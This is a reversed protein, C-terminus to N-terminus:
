QDSKNHSSDRYILEELYESFIVKSRRSKIASDLELAMKEVTFIYKVAAPVYNFRKYSSWESICMEARIHVTGMGSFGRSKGSIVM